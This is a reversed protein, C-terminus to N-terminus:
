DLFVKQLLRMLQDREGDTLAATAEIELALATKEAKTCLSLGEKTLALTQSRKDMPNRQRIVIGRTELKDLMPALNPPSVNAAQALRKQTINPNAKILSLLTFDVPRLEFKAMRNQFFPMISIYARRCNYGVLSLLLDQSVPQEDSEPFQEASEIIKKPRMTFFSIPHFPM